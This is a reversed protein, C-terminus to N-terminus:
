NRSCTVRGADVGGLRHIGSGFLVPSLAISYGDILAASASRLRAVEPGAPPRAGLRLRPDPTRSLAQPRDRLLLQGARLAGDSIVPFSGPPLADLLTRAEDCDAVHGLVGMFLLAVPRSLDLIEAAEAVIKTTDPMDADIQRTV